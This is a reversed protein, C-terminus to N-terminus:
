AGTSMPNSILAFAVRNFDLFVPMRAYMKLSERDYAGTCSVGMAGGQRVIDKNSLEFTLIRRLHEWLAIVDM